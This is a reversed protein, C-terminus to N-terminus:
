QTIKLSVNELYLLKILMLVVVHLTNLTSILLRFNFILCSTKRELVELKALTNM